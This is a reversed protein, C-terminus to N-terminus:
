DAAPKPQWIEDTVLESLQAVLLTGVEEKVACVTRGSVGLTRIEHVLRAWFCVVYNLVSWFM